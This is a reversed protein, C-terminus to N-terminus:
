GPPASCGPRPDAGPSPKALVGVPRDPQAQVPALAGDKGKILGWQQLTLEIRRPDISGSVKEMLLGGLDSPIEIDGKQIFCIRNTDRFLATLYGGEFIVNQRARLRLQEGFEYRRGEDDPTLLIFGAMCSRIKDELFGLLDEGTRAMAQIVVPKLDNAVLVDELQKRCADDHGHVIFVRKDEVLKKPSLSMMAELAKVAMDMNRRDKENMSHDKRNKFIVVGFPERRERRDLLLIPVGYCSGEAYEDGDENKPWWYRPHQNAIPAYEPARKQFVLTSIGESSPLQMKMHGWSALSNIDTKLNWVKLNGSGSRSNDPVYVLVAGSDCLDSHEVVQDLFFRIVLAQPRHRAMCLFDYLADLFTKQSAM